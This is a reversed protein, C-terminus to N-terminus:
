GLSTILEFLKNSMELMKAAAQYTQQYRMLNAAEEDLNVGSISQMADDGQKVLNEQATQTVELERTKNGVLAVMASYASQYTATGEALGNKLQLAGIALVNRNDGTASTNPGVTFSDGQAPNGSIVFSMGNFAVTAGSTFPVYDAAGAVDDASNMAYERLTGNPEKVTVTSGAPFGTLRAPLPPTATADAQRYTLSIPASPMSSAAVAIGSGLSVSGTGLPAKQSTVTLENGANFAVVVSLGSAANIRAQMDAALAARGAVTNPYPTAPATPTPTLTVQVPTGGDVSVLFSDNQGATVTLPFTPALSGSVAAGASVPTGFLAALGSKSGLPTGPVPNVIVEDGAALAGGAVFATGAFAYTAGDVYPVRQTASSINYTTTGVTVTSGVPFGILSKSTGVEEYTLKVPASLIADTQTVSGASIAGTGANTVASATRFGQALAIDRPDAVALAMDRAANRTPRILFSDGTAAVGSTLALSFGQPAFNRALDAIALADSAGRGAWTMEDSLRLLQFAGSGTKTLRYDSDTLTQLNSGSTALQANSASQVKVIRDAPSEGPRVIFVDGAAPTGSALSLRVGDVVLPLDPATTSTNDSLRTINYNTGDYRVRYDSVVVTAAIDANGGNSPAGLVSPTVTRFFDGAATGDLDRGLRHQANVNASMAMAVRGLNNQAIDLTESRFRLLGGLKGGTVLSEPIDLVEGNPARLAVQTEALDEPSPKAVLAYTQGGVVLPQGSGFLVSYSGDTEALVTVKIEKNLDSIIKDRQDYLDNAPQSSATAEAVIIRQNVSAVQQVLTNIVGIENAIQANTGSRMNSLQQDLANFRAALAQASSLMAQRAPVSAPYAAAEEASKFFGQLAPSLGASPDALLNDIQRIQEGYASLEAVNTEATRVEKQLFDSYARKVTQINTGQGIFGAGTFMPTNTSQVTYQRSFGPTSANAINHGTTLLGAQAANLGSVGVNFFGSAM